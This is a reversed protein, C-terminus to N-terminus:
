SPGAGPAASVSLQTGASPPWDVFDGIRTPAIDNLVDAIKISQNQNSIATAFANIYAIPVEEYIILAALDKGFDTLPFCNVQLRRKDRSTVKLVKNSFTFMGEDNEEVQWSTNLLGGGSQVVGLDEMELVTTFRVVEDARFIYANSVSLKLFDHIRVAESSDIASLRQLTRLKFTGPQRIEGALLRGWLIQLDKNSKRGTIGAFENLWDSDLKSTAAENPLEPEPERKLDSIAALTVMLRNRDESIQQEFHRILFADSSRPAIEAGELARRHDVERLASALSEADRRRNLNPEVFMNLWDVLNGGLRDIAAVLRSDAKAHVGNRELTAAIGVKRELPDQNIAPVKVTPVPVVGKGAARSRPKPEKKDPLHRAGFFKPCM